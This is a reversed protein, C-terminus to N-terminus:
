KRKALLLEVDDAAVNWIFASERDGGRVAMEARSRFSVVMERMNKRLYGDSGTTNPM